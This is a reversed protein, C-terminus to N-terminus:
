DQSKGKLFPLSTTPSASLLAEAVQSGLAAVRLLQITVAPFQSDAM